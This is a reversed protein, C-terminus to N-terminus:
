KLTRSSLRILRNMDCVMGCKSTPTNRIHSHASTRTRALNSILHSLYGCPWTARYLLWPICGVERYMYAASLHLFICLSASLHLCFVPASLQLCSAATRAVWDVHRNAGVGSSLSLPLSLSISFM